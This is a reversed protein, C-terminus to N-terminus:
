KSPKKGRSNNWFLRFCNFQVLCFDSALCFFIEKIHIRLFVSIYEFHVLFYIWFTNWFANEIRYVNKSGKLNFLLEAGFFFFFYWASFVAFYLRLSTMMVKMYHVTNCMLYIPYVYYPSSQAQNFCQPVLFPQCYCSHRTMTSFSGGRKAAISSQNSNKFTNLVNTLFTCKKTRVNRCKM